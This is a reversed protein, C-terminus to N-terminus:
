VKVVQIHVRLICKNQETVFKTPKVPPESLLSDAQLAPSMPKIGQLLFHGLFPLFMGGVGCSLPSSGLHADIQSHHQQAQQGM